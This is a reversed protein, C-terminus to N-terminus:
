FILSDGAPEDQPKHSRSVMLRRWVIAPQNLFRDGHLKCASARGANISAAAARRFSDVVFTETRYKETHKQVRSVIVYRQRALYLSVMTAMIALLRAVPPRNTVHCVSFFAVINLVSLVDSGYM